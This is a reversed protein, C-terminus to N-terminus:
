LAEEYMSYFEEESYVRYGDTLTRVVFDGVDARREEGDSWVDVCQMSRPLKIGKVAGNCWTAVQELNDVTVQVAAVFVEKPRYKKITGM